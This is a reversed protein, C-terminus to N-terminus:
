VVVIAQLGEKRVCNELYMLSTLPNELQMHRSTWKAHTEPRRQAPTANQLLDRMINWYCDCGFGVHSVPSRKSATGKMTRVLEWMTLVHARFLIQYSKLNCARLQSFSSSHKLVLESSGLVVNCERSLANAFIQFRPHPRGIGSPWCDM